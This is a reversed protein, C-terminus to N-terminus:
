RWRRADQAGRQRHLRRHRVRRSRREDRRPRRRQRRLQPAAAAGLLEYTEKRLSDGKGPEEGISLLGVRPSEVGFRHRAYVSGMQRSSCSGNPRCRPTPAPMSCSPRAPARSRSRHPSRRSPQRGQHPGDAAVGLGDHRRHQRGLDHRQGPRRSGGRRRPRADLGEQPARGPGPRRGHRHGRVGRDSRPCGDAATRGELDSPGVLVVPIGLPLPAIRGPSSRTRTRRRRGHRRRRVPLMPPHDASTSSSATRYWGCSPCVTHPAQRQRLPPVPQPGARAAALREGSPQPDEVEVTKKKPVAM